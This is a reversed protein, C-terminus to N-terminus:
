RELVPVFRRAEEGMGANMLEAYIREPMLSSAYDDGRYDTLNQERPVFLADFVSDDTAGGDANKLAALRKRTEAFKAGQLRSTTLDHLSLM